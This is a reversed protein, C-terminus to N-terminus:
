EEPERRRAGKINSLIAQTPDQFDWYSEPRFALDYGTPEFM